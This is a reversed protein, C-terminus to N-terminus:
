RMITKEALSRRAPQPGAEVLCFSQPEVRFPPAKGCPLAASGSESFAVTVPRCAHDSIYLSSGERGLPLPSLKRV